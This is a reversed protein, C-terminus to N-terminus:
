QLLIYTMHICFVFLYVMHVYPVVFIIMIMANCGTLVIIYGISFLM